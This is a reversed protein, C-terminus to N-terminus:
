RPLESMAKFFDEIRCAPLTQVEVEGTSAACGALKLAAVEDPCDWLGIFDYQGFCAVVNLPKCGLSEAFKRVTEFSSSAERIKMAGQPTMKVLNVYLAM